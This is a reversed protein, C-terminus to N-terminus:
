EPLSPEKIFFQGALVLAWTSVTVLKAYVTPLGVAIAIAPVVYLSLALGLLIGLYVQYRVRYTTATQEVTRRVEKVKHESM